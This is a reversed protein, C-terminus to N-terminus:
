LEKIDKEAIWGTKGDAIKIKKWDNVEDLIQVKTGEHLTFAEDSRTNPESKVQTEQAFVIAAQDKQVLNYNHFTFALAICALFISAISGIFYLRKTTTAYTFYYLLFLIVFSFVLAVSLKAWGDFTFSNTINKTFKKIGIEPLTEIADIKMNNAYSMNNKIDNDNPALKAAKEYYYISPAIHNLKYHANAINYYLEASHKDGELITNYKDLAEAYKGQNYLANAQEFVVTDNQAFLPGSFIFLFLYLVLKM